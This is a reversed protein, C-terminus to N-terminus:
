LGDYLFSASHTGKAFYLKKDLILAYAGRVYSLIMFAVCLNPSFTMESEESIQLLSM